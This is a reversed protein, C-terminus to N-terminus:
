CITIACFLHLFYHYRQIPLTDQLIVFCLYYLFTRYESGKWHALVDIKRVSRHIEKPMTCQSLFENVKEIDRGCWKILYKGINGDRWGVLLWKMVGLDILHLSDSVPNNEEM